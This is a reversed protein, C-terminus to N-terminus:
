KNDVKTILDDIKSDIKEYYSITEKLQKNELLLKYAVSVAAKADSRLQSKKLFEDMMDSLENAIDKYYQEQGDPINLLLHQGLITLEFSGM